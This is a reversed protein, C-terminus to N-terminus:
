YDRFEVRPSFNHWRETGLVARGQTRERELVAAAAASGAAVVMRMEADEMGAPFGLGESACFDAFIDGKVQGSGIYGGAIETDRESAKEGCDGLAVDLGFRGGGEGVEAVCEDLRPEEGLVFV